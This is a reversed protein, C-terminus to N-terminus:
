RLIREVVQGPVTHKLLRDSRAAGVSMKGAHPPFAGVEFYKATM